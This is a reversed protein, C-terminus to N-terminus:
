LSIDEMVRQNLEPNRMKRPAAAASFADEMYFAKRPPTRLM